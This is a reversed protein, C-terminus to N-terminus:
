PLEPTYLQPFFYFTVIHRPSELYLAFALYVGGEAANFILYSIPHQPLQELPTMPTPWM